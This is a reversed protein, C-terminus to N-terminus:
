QNNSPNIDCSRVCKYDLGIDYTLFKTYTHSIEFAASGPGIM